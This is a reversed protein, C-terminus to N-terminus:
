GAAYGPLAGHPLSSRSAVSRLFPVQLETQQYHDNLPVVIAGLAVAAFYSTVFDLGNPLLLAIRDGPCVGLGSLEAALSAVGRELAAYSVRTEGNVIATREANQKAVTTLMEPLTKM